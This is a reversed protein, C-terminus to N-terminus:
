VRRCESPLYVTQVPFGLIQGLDAMRQGHEVKYEVVNLLYTLLKYLFASSKALTQWASAM